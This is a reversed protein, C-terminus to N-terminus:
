LHVVKADGWLHELNYFSRDAEQFVHVVVCGYDLLIWHADQMGEVRPIELGDEKLTKQINAAIAKVQISTNGSCIVFYDCVVSIEFVDLVVVDRAKKDEAARAVLSVLEIPAITL